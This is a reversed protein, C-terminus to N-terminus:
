KDYTLFKDIEKGLKIAQEVNLAIGYRFFGGGNPAQVEEAILNEVEEEDLDSTDITVQEINYGDSYSEQPDLTVILLRKETVKESM